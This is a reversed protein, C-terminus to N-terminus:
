AISGPSPVHFQLKSVIIPVVLSTNRGVAPYDGYVLALFNLPVDQYRRLM